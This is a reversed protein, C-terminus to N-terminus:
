RLRWYYLLNLVWNKDVSQEFRLSHPESTSLDANIVWVKCLTLM